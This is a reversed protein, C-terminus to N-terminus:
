SSTLADFYEQDSKKNMKQQCIFFVLSYFLLFFFYFGGAIVIGALALRLYLLDWDTLFSLGWIILLVTLPILNWFKMKMKM